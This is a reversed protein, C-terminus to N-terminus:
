PRSPGLGSWPSSVIGAAGHAGARGSGRRSCADGPVRGPPVFERLVSRRRDVDSICPHRDIWHIQVGHGRVSRAAHPRYEDRGHERGEGDDQSRRRERTAQDLLQRLYSNERRTAELDFVLYKVSLRLFDLSEQLETVSHSIRDRRRQTADALQEMCARQEPPLEGIRHLLETFKEQFTQEDM